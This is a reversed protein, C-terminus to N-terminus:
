ADKWNVRFPTGEKEVFIMVEPFGRGEYASKLEFGRDVGEFVFRQFAFPGQGCPDIVSRLGAEGNLKYEAAARVMALEVLIALEKPRCKEFSPFTESILPNSSGHVEASFRKLQQESQERPLALIEALRPFLPEADQLLKIVGDSTGGSATIIRSLNTDSGGEEGPGEYFGRIAEMVRADNGSNEKQLELIKAMIWDFFVTKEKPISAAVTGRPPAADFGDALQILIEPPFQGFNEAVTCCIINEMAIQVLVSILIKDASTNRALTFAALLDDRAAEPRGQQLEGMVRLRAVNAIGKNRALGPLLTAPGPSMDVGWDCSPKQQAAQRVARFQNDYEGVLKGFREPLKQGRWETNFLYSRDDKSLEPALIFAQYYLLAPNIDTRFEAARAGPMALLFLMLCGCSTTKMVTKMKKM